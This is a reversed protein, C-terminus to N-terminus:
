DIVNTINLLQFLKAYKKKECNDANKLAKYPSVYKKSENSDGDDENKEKCDDCVGGCECTQSGNDNDLDVQNNDRQMKYYENLFTKFKLKKM